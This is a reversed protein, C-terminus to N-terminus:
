PVDYDVVLQIQALAHFDHREGSWELVPGNGDQGEHCGPWQPGVPIVPAM